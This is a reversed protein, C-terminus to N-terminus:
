TEDTDVGILEINFDDTKGKIFELYENIDKLELDRKDKIKFKEIHHILKMEDSDGCLIDSIIAHESYYKNNSEILNDLQNVPKLIGILKDIIINDNNGELIIKNAILNNREIKSIEEISYSITSETKHIGIIYLDWLIARLDLVQNTNDDKTFDVTNKFTSTFGKTRLQKSILKASENLFEVSNSELLEVIFFLRDDVLIFYYMRQDISISHMDYDKSKMLELISTM